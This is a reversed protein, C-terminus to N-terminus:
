LLLYRFKQNKIGTKEIEIIYKLIENSLAAKIM